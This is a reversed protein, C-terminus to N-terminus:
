LGTCTGSEGGHGRAQLLLAAGMTATGYGNTAPTALLLRPLQQKRRTVAEVVQVLEAVAGGVAM